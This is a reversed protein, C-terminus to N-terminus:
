ESIQTDMLFFIGQVDVLPLTSLDADILALWEQQGKQILATIHLYVICLDVFFEQCNNLTMFPKQPHLGRPSPSNEVPMLPPLFNKLGERPLVLLPPFFYCWHHNNVAKGLELCLQYFCVRCAKGAQSPARFLKLVLSSWVGTSPQKQSAKIAKSHMHIDILALSFIDEELCLM